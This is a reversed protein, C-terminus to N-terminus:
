RKRFSYAVGATVRLNNQRGDVERRGLEISLRKTRRMEDESFRGAGFAHNGIRTTLTAISAEDSRM